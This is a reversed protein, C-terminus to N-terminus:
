NYALGCERFKARREKHEKAAFLGDANPWGQGPFQQFKVSAIIM